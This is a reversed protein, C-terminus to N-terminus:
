IHSILIIALLASPGFMEEPTNFPLGIRDAFQRDSGSFDYKRGAADGVYFSMLKDVQAGSNSTRRFYKWMGEGPKRNRDYSTAAYVTMPVGVQSLIENMKAMFNAAEPSGPRRAKAQNTFVM